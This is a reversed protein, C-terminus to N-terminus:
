DAKNVAQRLSDRTTEDIMSINYLHEVLASIGVQLTNAASAVTNADVRGAGLSRRVLSRPMLLMAAFANARKEISPPAWPGSVHTVRRAFGRDYLLHFLEHALTFRKGAENVNYDSTNNVLITPSYGSGAIAIGRITSTKLM